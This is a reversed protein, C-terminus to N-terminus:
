PSVFGRTLFQPAERASATVYQGDVKLLRIWHNRLGGAGYGDRFFIRVCLHLLTNSHSNCDPMVQGASPRFSCKIIMNAPKYVAAM